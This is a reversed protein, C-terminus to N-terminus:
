DFRGDISSIPGILDSAYIESPDSQENLNRWIEMFHRMQQGAPSRKWTASQQKRYRLAKRAIDIGNDGLGCRQIQWEDHQFEKEQSGSKARIWADFAAQASALVELHGAIEEDTLIAEADRAARFDAAWEAVKAREIRFVWPGLRFWVQEQQQGQLWRTLVTIRSPELFAFPRRSDVRVEIHPEGVMVFAGWESPRLQEPLAPDTMWECYFERCVAPKRAHISCGSGKKLFRCPYSAGKLIKRPEPIELERCCLDCTGCQRSPISSDRAELREGDRAPATETMTAM